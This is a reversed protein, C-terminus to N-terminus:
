ILGCARDGNSSIINHCGTESISCRRLIAGGEGEAALQIGDEELEM